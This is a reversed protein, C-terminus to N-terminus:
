IDSELIELQAPAEIIQCEEIELKKRNEKM